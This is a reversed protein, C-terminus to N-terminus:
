QADASERTSRFVYDEDRIYRVRTDQISGWTSYPRPEVEPFLVETAPATNAVFPLALAPDVPRDFEDPSVTQGDALLALRVDDPLAIAHTVGAKRLADSVSTSARPQREAYVLFGHADVGLAANARSAADVPAGMLIRIAGEPPVGVRYAYGVDSPVAYLWVDGPAPAESTIGTLYALVPATPADDATTRPVRAPVTAPHVRAPDMRVLWVREGEAGGIPARAFAHPWGAHPLGATSFQGEGAPLGELAPGPLVPRMLLYFFDRPDRNIYRPFRMPEMSRVMM